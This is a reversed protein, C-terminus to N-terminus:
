HGCGSPAYSDLEAVHSVYFSDEKKESRKLLDATKQKITELFIHNQYVM